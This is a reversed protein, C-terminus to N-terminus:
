RFCVVFDVAGPSGVVELRCAVFCTGRTLGYEGAEMPGPHTSILRTCRECDTFVVFTVCVCVCRCLSYNLITGQVCGPILSKERLEFFPRIIIIINKRLFVMGLKTRHM